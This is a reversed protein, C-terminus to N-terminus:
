ILYMCLLARGRHPVPRPSPSPPRARTHCPGPRAGATFSVSRRMRQTPQAPRTEPSVPKAKASIAEPVSSDIRVGTSAVARTSTQLMRECAIEIRRSRVQGGRPVAKAIIRGPRTPAGIPMWRSCSRSGRKMLTAM